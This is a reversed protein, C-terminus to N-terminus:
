VPLLNRKGRKGKSKFGRIATNSQTMNTTYSYDLSKYHPRLLYRLRYEFRDPFHMKTAISTYLKRVKFQQFPGKYTPINRCIYWMRVNSGERRSTFHICRPSILGSNINDWKKTHVLAPPPPPWPPMHSPSVILLGPPLSLPISPPM